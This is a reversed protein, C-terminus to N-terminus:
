VTGQDFYVDRHKARPVEAAAVVGEAEGYREELVVGGTVEYGQRVYLDEGDVWFANGEHRFWEDGWLDVSVREWDYEPRGRRFRRWKQRNQPDHVGGVAQRM